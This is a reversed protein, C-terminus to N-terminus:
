RRGVRPDPPALRCSTSFASRETPRRWTTELVLTDLLYRPDGLASIGHATSRPEWSPPTPPPSEFDPLCMWDVSGTTSILCSTQM